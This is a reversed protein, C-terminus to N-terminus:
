IFNFFLFTPLYYHHPIIPSLGRNIGFVYHLPFFALGPYLTMRRNELRRWPMGAFPRPNRIEPDDPPHPTSVVV